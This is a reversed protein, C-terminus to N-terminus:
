KDKQRSQSKKPEVNTINSKQWLTILPVAIDKFPFVDFSELWELEDEPITKDQQWAMIYALHQCIQFVEESMEGSTLKQFDMFLDRNFKNRYYYTTAANAKFTVDRDGIKITQTM